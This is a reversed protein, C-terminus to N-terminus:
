FKESISSCPRVSRSKSFPVIRILGTYLTLYNNRRPRLGVVAHVRGGVRRKDDEQLSAPRRTIGANSRSFAGPQPRPLNCGPARLRDLLPMCGVRSVIRRMYLRLPRRAPSARTLNSIRYLCEASQIRMRPPHRLRSTSATGATAPPRVEHAAPPPLCPPPRTDDPAPRPAPHASFIVCDLLRM